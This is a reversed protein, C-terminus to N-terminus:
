LFPFPIGFAWLTATVFYLASGTIAFALYIRSRTRVSIMQLTVFVLVFYTLILIAISGIMQLFTLNNM